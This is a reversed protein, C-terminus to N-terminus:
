KGGQVLSWFQAPDTTLQDPLSSRNKADYAASHNTHIIREGGYGKGRHGKEADVAIDYTGFLLNDSWEKLLAAIRRDMKMEWREYNEGQPNNFPKVACHALFIVHMKKERRLHDIGLLLRKWEEFVMTYGKGWGGGVEEISNKGTKKLVFEQCLSETWDATDVVFSKFGHTENRLINVCELVNEWTQPEPFVDVSVCKLGDETSLFVPAPAKAAWTTKGWGETGYLVIKESEGKESKKLMSLMMKKAEPIVAVQPLQGNGNALESKRMVPM